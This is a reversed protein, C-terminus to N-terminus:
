ILIQCKPMKISLLFLVMRQETQHEINQSQIIIEDIGLDYHESVFVDFKKLRERYKIATSENM